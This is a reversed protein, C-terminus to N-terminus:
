SQPRQSFIFGGFCVVLALSLIWLNRFVVQYNEVEVARQGVRKGPEDADEVFDRVLEAELPDLVFVDIRQAPEATAVHHLM